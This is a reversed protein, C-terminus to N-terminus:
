RLRINTSWLALQANLRRNVACSARAPAAVCKKIRFLFAGYVTRNQVVVPFM